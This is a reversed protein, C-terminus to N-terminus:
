WPFNDLRLNEEGVVDILRPKMSIPVRAKDLKETLGLVWEPKTKIKGSRNGTEDGIVAWGIGRLNINKIEGHLPEFCIWYNAAKIGQLMKQIRSVDAQNTVTVGIWVNKMDRCDLNRVLEPRKTLFLYTNKPYKRMEEFMEERYDEPWGSLDSMSTMLFTKPFRTHIKKIANPMITPVEFNPTFHFRVNLRRAYCYPCGNSCGLVPNCSDITNIDNNTM